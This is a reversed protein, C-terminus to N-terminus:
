VPTYTDAQTVVLWHVILFQTAVSITQEGICDVCLHNEMVKVIIQTAM